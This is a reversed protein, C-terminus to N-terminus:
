GDTKQVAGASGDAAQGGNHCYDSFADRVDDPLRCQLWDSDSDDITEIREAHAHASGELQEITTELAKHSRAVIDRLRANEEREIGIDRMLLGNEECLRINEAKSRSLRVTQVCITAAALIACIIAFIVINRNM